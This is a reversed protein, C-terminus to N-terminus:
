KECAISVTYFLYIFRVVNLSLSSINLSKNWFAQFSKAQLIQKLIFFMEACVYAYKKRYACFYYLRWSVDLMQSEIGVARKAWSCFLLEKFGQTVDETLWKM